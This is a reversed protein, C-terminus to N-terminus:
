FHRRPNQNAPWCFSNRWRIKKYLDGIFRNEDDLLACRYFFKPTPVVAVVKMSSVNLDLRSGVCCDGGTHYLIALFVRQRDMAGVFTGNVSPGSM